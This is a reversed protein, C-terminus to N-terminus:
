SIKGTREYKEILKNIGEQVMKIVRTRHLKKLGLARKVVNKFTDDYEIEYTASGDKNKIEKVLRIIGLYKYGEKM